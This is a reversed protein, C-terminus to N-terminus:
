QMKNTREIVQSQAVKKTRTMVESFGTITRKKCNTATKGPVSM